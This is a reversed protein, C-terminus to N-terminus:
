VRPTPLTWGPCACHTRVVCAVVLYGQAVMVWSEQTPVVAAPNVPMGLCSGTGAPVEQVLGELAPARSSLLCSSPILEM